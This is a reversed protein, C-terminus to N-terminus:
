DDTKGFGNTTLIVIMMVMTTLREMCIMPVIFLTLLMKKTMM